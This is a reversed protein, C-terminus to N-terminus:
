VFLVCTLAQVISKLSSAGDELWTVISLSSGSVHGCKGLLFVILLALSGLTSAVVQTRALSGVFRFLSISMQHMLVM